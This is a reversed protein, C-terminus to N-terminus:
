ATHVVVREPVYGDDLRVDIHVKKSPAELRKGPLEGTLMQYFVVGLAYIDARAFTTTLLVIGPLDAVAAQLAAFDAENGTVNQVKIVLAAHHGALGSLRFADIVARPNKRARQANKGELTKPKPVHLLSM